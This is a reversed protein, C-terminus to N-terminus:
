YNFLKISSFLNFIKFIYIHECVYVYTASIPTRPGMTGPLDATAFSFLSDQPLMIIYLNVNVM